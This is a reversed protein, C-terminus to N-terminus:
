MDEYFLKEMTAAITKTAYESHLEAIIKKLKKYCSDVDYYHTDM